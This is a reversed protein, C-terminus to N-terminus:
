AAMVAASQCKTQASEPLGSEAPGSKFCASFGFTQLANLASGEPKTFSRPSLPHHLGLRLTDCPTPEGPSPRLCSWSEAESRPDFGRIRHAMAYRVGPHETFLSIPGRSRFIRM